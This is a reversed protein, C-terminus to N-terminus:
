KAFYEVYIKLLRADIKEEKLMMDEIQKKIEQKLKINKSIDKILMNPYNYLWKLKFKDVPFENINYFFDYEDNIGLFIKFKEKELIYNSLILNTTMELLQDLFNPFSRIEKENESEKKEKSLLNYYKNEYEIEPKIIKRILAEYYIKSHIENFDTENLKLMIIKKAKNKDNIDLISYLSIIVLYIDDNLNEILKDIRNKLKYNKNNNEICYIVNNIISIQENFVRQKRSISGLTKDLISVLTNIEYNNFREYQCYIYKNIYRFENLNLYNRNSYEIICENIEKYQEANLEIVTLILLIKNINIHTYYKNKDKIFNICKKIVVVFQKIDEPKVKIKKIEYMQFLNELENVNVYELMIILDFLTFEEIKINEIAQGFISEDKDRVIKTASYSKVIGDIYNYFVNNIEKYRDIALMNFKVFKWFSRINSQFQYIGTNGESIWAYCTNEEKEIKQRVEAMQRMQSDVFNWNLILKLFEREEQKFPFQLLMKDLDIGQIENKIKDCIARENSWESAIIREIYYRNFESIAYIVYEKNKLANGSIAKYEKYANYYEEVCYMAYARELRLKYNNKQESFDTNTIFDKLKFFDLMKLSEETGLFKYEKKNKYIVKTKGREGNINQKIIRKIEAKDLFHIIKSFDYKKTRISHRVKRIFDDANSNNFFIKNEKIEFDSINRLGLKQNLFKIIVKNNIYNINKFEDVFDYLENIAFRKKYDDLLYKIFSLTKKGMLNDIENSSEELKGRLKEDIESYYLINIGKNKYYQYENIDFKNEKDIKLFYPRPLDNGLIDKVWQFIYHVDPDSLSYGVFLITHTSFLSKIYTEILKFKRSYSIYDDEKFVINRNKFDGHMKIIMKNNPTYPLDSDKSVIDYFMGRKIAQQEILNDYNTTIIHYPNLELLKDHIENPKANINLESELFEYYEKKDRSNYYYQAIKLSDKEENSIDIKEKIKDIINKWMPIGSNASVGAGVFIVLKNNKSSEQIIRKSEEMYKKM